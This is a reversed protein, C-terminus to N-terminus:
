GKSLLRKAPAGIGTPARWVDESIRRAGVPVDTVFLLHDVREGGCHSAFGFENWTIPFSEHRSQLAAREIDDYIAEFRCGIALALNKEALGVVYELQLERH